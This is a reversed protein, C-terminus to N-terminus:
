KLKEFIQKILDSKLKTAHNISEKQCSVQALFVENKSKKNSIYLSLFILSVGKLTKEEVKFVLKGIGLATEFLWELQNHIHVCTSPLKALATELGGFKVVVERLEALVDDNFSKKVPFSPQARQSSNKNGSVQSSQSKQEAEAETQYVELNKIKDAHLDNLIEAVIPFFKGLMERNVLLKREKETQPGCFVIEAIVQQSIKAHYYTTNKQANKVLLKSLECPTKFFKAFCYNIISNINSEKRLMEYAWEVEESSLAKKVYRSIAEKSIDFKIDYKETENHIAEQLPLVGQFAQGSTGAKDESKAHGAFYKRLESFTLPTYNSSILYWDPQKESPEGKESNHLALVRARIAEPMMIKDLQVLPEM